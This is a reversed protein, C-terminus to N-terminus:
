PYAPPPTSKLRSVRELGRRAAEDEPNLAVNRGYEREAASFDRNSEYWLALAGHADGSAPDLQIAKRLATGAEDSRGMQGYLLGIWVYIQSGPKLQAALQFHRMGEETRGLCALARGWSVSVYYNHPLIREARQLYPVALDCRNHKILTEALNILPRPNHQADEAALAILLEPKGWLQNRAFCFGGFTLAIATVLGWVAPRSPKQREVLDCGILILGLLPLYMRREVLPDDIPVISSTPALWILFMLFGFCALRHSRRWRVAAWILGALLAMYFLAGHQMITRSTPFDHDLAQGIPVVALQLYTFIARAETFAYQYWKFTAVSFGATGATALM